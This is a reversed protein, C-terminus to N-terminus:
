DFWSRKMSVVFRLGPHESLSWLHGTKNNYTIDEPGIPLAWPIHRLNGPRGVYMSGPCWKGRSVTVYYQDSIAMVGQMGPIGDNTIQIQRTVEDVLVDPLLSEEALPIRALRTTQEGRGYEGCVLQPHQEEHSLSLFSYRLAAHGDDARAQYTFRVPLLHSYGYTAVEEERALLRDSYPARRTEPVRMIDGLRFTVLGRATAAIHLHDGAWVVGGAHIRVPELTLLGKRIVPEVLLINRYRLTALDLITIRSGPNVGALPRAYWTAILYRDPDIGDTAFADSGTTIGQPYWQYSRCDFNDWTYAKHVARGFLGYARRGQRNLSSVAGSFGVAGGLLEKLATIEAINEETRVLHLGSHATFPM